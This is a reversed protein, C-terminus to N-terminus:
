FIQQYLLRIQNDVLEYQGNNVFPVEIRFKSKQSKVNGNWSFIDENKVKSIYGFEILEPIIRSSFQTNHIKTWNSLDVLSISFEHKYDSFAKAYCLLSLATLRANKSDFRDKINKIDDTNIYIHLNDKLRQDEAFAQHIIANVNCQIYVGYKKGWNFIENRTEVQNKGSEKYWKALLYCIRYICKKNINKGDIYEKVEIIENIM